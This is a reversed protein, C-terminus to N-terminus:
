LASGGVFGARNLRHTVANITVLFATFVDGIEDLGDCPEFLSRRLELLETVGLKSLDVRDHHLAIEEAVRRTARREATVPIGFDAISLGGSRGGGARPPVHPLHHTGSHRRDDRYNEGCRLTEDDM